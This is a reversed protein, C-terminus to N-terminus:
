DTDLFNLLVARSWGNKIVQDVFFLAKDKDGRCKDIIAKNHGWPINFPSIKFKGGVQPHNSDKSKAGLQPLM